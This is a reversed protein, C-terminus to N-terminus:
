IRNASTDDMGASADFSRTEGAMRSSQGGGGAYREFEEQFRATLFAQDDYQDKLDLFWENEEEYIHHLVDAPGHQV